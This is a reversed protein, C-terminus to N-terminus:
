KKDEAEKKAAEQARKNSEDILAQALNYTQEAYSKHHSTDTYDFRGEFKGAVSLAFRDILPLDASM